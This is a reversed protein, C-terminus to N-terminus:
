IPCNFMWNPPFLFIVCISQLCTLRILLTTDPPNPSAEKNFAHNCSKVRDKSLETNSLLDFQQEKAVDVAFVLAQGTFQQRLQQWNIDNVKKARYNHKKM